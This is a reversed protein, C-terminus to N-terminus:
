NAESYLYAIVGIIIGIVVLVQWFSILLIISGLFLSLIALGPRSDKEYYFGGLACGIAIFGLPAASLNSWISFSMLGQVDCYIIVITGLIDFILAILGYTPVKYHVNPKSRRSISVLEGIFLITIFIVNIAILLGIRNASLLIGIGILIGVISAFGGVFKPYESVFEKFSNSTELQESEVVKELTLEEANMEMVDVNKVEEYYEKM